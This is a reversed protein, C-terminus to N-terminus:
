CSPQPMRQPLPRCTRARLRQGLAAIFEPNTGCCGGIFAAGADVLREAFAAFEAPTTRYVIRGNVIQPLGADPKIWVPRNTADKLRRCVDIYQEAGQGCNAGIADAGATTLERAVEEPSHGILDFNHAKGSDFAMCAIVALGTTRAAAIATRAECLDSMNEIVLAEAGAAALAGAQEEFATLLQDVTVDGTLLSKGSPGISAFVAARGAAARRSIEVGARNIAVVGDVLDTGALALRNARFTNTLIVQSGADVYSRAVAEVTKPHSLNWGDPCADSALGADALPARWAGDTLVPGSSTFHRLLCHM